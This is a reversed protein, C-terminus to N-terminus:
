NVLAHLPSFSLISDRLIRVAKYLERLIARYAAKANTAMVRLLLYPSQSCLGRASFAPLSLSMARTANARVSYM